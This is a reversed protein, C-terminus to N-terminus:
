GAGLRRRVDDLRGAITGDIIEDGIEISLGGIASPDLEINLHVEHGYAAALVAALRSRQRASLDTPTRVLAVLRQRRQAVLKGFEALGGELSRGRPRLVLETVLTLTAPTVKGELLANVLGLKRDDPLGPGTLASRLEVEGEVVRSFRFLEDELDDIQGDAEARAAEATVALTEVADALESPKSWRLQVVDAVLGLAAPSVKGELLIQVLQAKDAGDRAPDSVARRLGHERDILHLVAFLDAGLAALDASPIVAELRTRAQALSARSVAGTITM